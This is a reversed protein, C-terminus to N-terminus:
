WISFDREPGGKKRDCGESACRLPDLQSIKGRVDSFHVRRDRSLQRGGEVDMQERFYEM